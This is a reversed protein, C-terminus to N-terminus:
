KGSVTTTSSGTPIGAASNAAAALSHNSSISCSQASASCFGSNSRPAKSAASTALASLSEPTSRSCAAAANGPFEDCHCQGVAETLANAAATLAGSILMACPASRGIVIHHVAPESSTSGQTSNFRAKGRGSENAASSAPVQFSPRQSPSTAGGASEPGGERSSSACYRM